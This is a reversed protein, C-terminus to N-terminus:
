ERRKKIYVYIAVSFLTIMLPILEMGPAYRWSPRAKVINSKPGEGASNVASVRYYYTNENKVSTDNYHTVNGPVTKILELQNNKKGRYINYKTIESGGDDAPPSWTLNVTSNGPEAQLRRPATPVKDNPGHSGSPKAKTLNSKPGEGANNVASVKYYYWNGNEVSNDSYKTTGGNVDTLYQLKNENQGRYIKYKEIQSGGDDVPPTWSLSITSNEGEAELDQPATPTSIITSQVTNSPQSEGEDNVATVYYYYDVSTKVDSDTYSTSSVEHYFDIDDKSRGRYIKYSSIQLGGDESPESWDLSINNQNSSAKLNTPSSPITTVEKSVIISSDSEGIDNVATVYYYYTTGLDIDRDTFSTSNVSEYLTLDSESKGRYINYHSLQLGGDDSPTDWSLLIDDDQESAKLNSPSSPKTIIKISQTSSPDSEGIDNVATVHYHYTVGKEISDDLYDTNNGDIKVLLSKTDKDKGRYVNYHTIARGGDDSPQTWDLSAYIQDETVEFKEPSSPETIVEINVTDSAGSEGEDNTATIYYYYVTGKQIDSDTFGTSGVESYFGMNDESTGRYINYSIELGGDDSPRDWTLYISSGDEDVNLNNPSSPKTTVKSSVIGTPDSEGVDNVATVYYHYSVGKQINFDAYETSNVSLYLSINDQSTGRYLNYQSIFLGGDDNPQEWTLSINSDGEEVQLNDPSSPRTTVKINETSSPESEGVENVATVYYYYKVGKEIAEDLYETSNVECYFIINDKSEGKYINYATIDRGGDDSPRTWDLDVNDQSQQVTLDIPNSPSTIVEKNVFNSADSEGVDNVATVYYYYTVGKQISDDEYYHTNSDVDTLLNMRNTDDGRYIRYRYISNGGNEDPKEWNLEISDKTTGASLNLPTSPKTEVTINVKDSPVSEGIDNVATVYYHYKKGLDIDTDNFRTNITESYYSINNEDTGRYIRYSTLELGGDDAPPNWDLYVDTGNKLATLDSPSSPKTTIMISQTSSPESEGVENVATIHYHYDIGKEINTDMYDTSNLQVYFSLNNESEGRYILYKTIERGGDDTPESWNLYVDLQEEIVSFDRPSSPTTTVESWDTSSPYSEGLDNVATVYYFYTEGKQIETDLYSLKDVTTLFSINNESRGKYIKYHLIDLGGDDVPPDWSLFINNDQQVAEFNTPYSPKTTIKISETDSPDSEGVSNVATIQYHYNVGKEIDTDLYDTSNVEIFFSLDNESQGRYIMYKTIERGGDDTPESWNLYIDLQEEIVTLNKPPSPVTTVEEDVVMTPESKGVDNVAKVYYYYRVGKQINSDLYENSDVSVYLSLNDKSTGRYIEYYVALGGDDSPPSWNLSINDDVQSAELNTPSSPKTTVRISKIDTRNSEGVENVATIYYYYRVGKEISDDLYETVNRDVSVFLSISDKSKGRYIKYGSINRGGDDIPETWNLYAYIQEEILNFDTPSSPVTTVEEGVTNSSISEGISNVATVYYYYKTGKVISSDSFYTTEGDVSTYLSINDKSFGRYIKYSTIESGGDDESPSWDLEISEDTTSTSLNLPPSPEEKVTENVINSPGSEGINNVATIYYFYKEGKEVSKDEFQTINGEVSTIISLDGVNEGRYIYYNTIPSGGDEDPASWNLNLYVDVATISLDSPSSPEKKVTKNVIDSPESEGLDNVATVYYHYDTGFEINTDMFETSDSSTYLNLNGESDGRYVNYYLIQLGGDDTPESWNLSIDYDVINAKLSTPRSPKTTVQLNEINSPDSEGVDNVATVYYYYTVGKDISDDLYDTDNSDVSKMLSINNETKGRYINYNTIESGGVYSPESWNLLVNSEFQSATFDVPSNPPENHPTANVIDSKDGEAYKSEASIKYYYTEVNVVDTDNYRQKSSDVSNLFSLSSSSTGRYINYEVIENGGDQKPKEWSLEVRKPHPEAKVNQPTSPTGTFAYIKHDHSAIYVTGDKAISPSSTITNGTKYKWRLEGKNNLSYVYQDESGFYVNGKSDVAPSSSIKDDTSYRWKLSGDLDFSYLYGDYAGVLVSNDPGLAPSSFIKYGINYKWNLSGNAHFSYFNGDWSGVYIKGDQCIAPSSFIGDGSSYKWKLTGNPHLAYFNGDYSGVYIIGDRDVTASSRVWGETSYNWKETGDPNVAYIKNDGSGVIITGDSTLTPSSDVAGDTDFKWNLNGNLDLSYLNGNRSGFYVNQDHIAPTSYIAEYNEDGANFSWALDGDPEISYLNNNSTGIYINGISDISPSSYAILSGTDYSWKLTGDVNSSNYPSLHTHFKNYGFCAWQVEDGGSSNSKVLNDQTNVESGSNIFSSGTISVNIFLFVVLILVIGRRIGRRSVPM